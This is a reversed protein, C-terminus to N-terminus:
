EQGTSWSALGIKRYIELNHRITNSLKQRQADQYTIRTTIQTPQKSRFYSSSSDLFTSIEKGGPLFELGSFLTLASVEVAKM